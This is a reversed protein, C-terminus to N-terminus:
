RHGQDDRGPLDVAVTLDAHIAAVDAAVTALQRQIRALASQARHIAAVSPPSPVYHGEGTLLWAPDVHLVEAVRPVMDAYVRIKDHEITSVTSRSWGVADGLDDQSLHAGLRAATIRQGLTTRGWDFPQGTADALTAWDFPPTRDTM